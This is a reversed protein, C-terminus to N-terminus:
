DLSYNHATKPSYFELVDGLKSSAGSSNQAAAFRATTQSKSVNFILIRVGKKHADHWVQM